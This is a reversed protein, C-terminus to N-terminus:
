GNKCWYKYANIYQMAKYDDLIIDQILIRMKTKNLLIIGMVSGVHDDTSIKKLVAEQKGIRCPRPTAINEDLVIEWGVIQEEKDHCDMTAEEVIKEYLKKQNTSITKKMKKM